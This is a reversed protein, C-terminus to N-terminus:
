RGRRATSAVTLTDRPRVGVSPSPRYLLPNAPRKAKRGCNKKLLDEPPPNHIPKWPIPNVFSPAPYSSGDYYGTLKGNCYGFSSSAPRPKEKANRLWEKFKEQAKQRRERLEAERRSAEEQEKQKKEVEERKKRKLWERYRQRAKEETERRKQERIEMEEMEKSLKTEKEVKEQERKMQLWDHIRGEAVSRKREEVKEREMKERKLSLEKLAKRQMEAREERAKRVVWEEWASLSFEASPCRELDVNTASKTKSKSARDPTGMEEGRAPTPAGREEPEPQDESESEFSDHYIPSLLSSTSDGASEEEWGRQGPPGDRQPRSKYPTSSSADSRSFSCRAAPTGSM